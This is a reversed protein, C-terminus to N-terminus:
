FPLSRRSAYLVRKRLLTFGARGYMQRKVLKLRHIQGEVQGNSEEYTLGAMVADWESRLRQAFRRLERIGSMQWRESWAGLGDAHRKVVLTRFTQVLERLRALEAHQDCLWEIHERETDTLEAPDRVLFWQVQTFSYRALRSLATDSAPPLPPDQVASVTPPDSGADPEMAAQRLPRLYKSVMRSSGTYGREALEYWLQLGNHCGERWRRAVYGAFPDFPSSRKRYRTDPRFHRLWHRVTRAPMRLREGIEESTLGQERLARMQSYQRKREEQRVLRRRETLATPAAKWPAGFPVAAPLAQREAGM